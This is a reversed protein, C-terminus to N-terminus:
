VKPDGNQRCSICSFAMNEIDVDYYDKKRYRVGSCELHFPDDCIDCLLWRDGNDEWENGCEHHQCVWTDIGLSIDVEVEEEIDVRIEEGPVVKPGRYRRPYPRAQGVGVHDKLLAVCSKNLFSGTEPGGPDRNCGPLRKLVQGRDLPVIGCAKFGSSLNDRNIKKFLRSLLLPFQEKPILGSFHTDKRWQELIVKWSVKVPRFVAVDLPQCIHTTNPPLAIYRVNLEQCKAIVAPSFHCGLNDGILAKPGEIDKIRPM